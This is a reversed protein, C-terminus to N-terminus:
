WQFQRPLSRDRWSDIEEDTLDIFEERSRFEEVIHWWGKKAKGTLRLYEEQSILVATPKGQRTLTTHEGKEALDVLNPLVNQAEIVSYERQM